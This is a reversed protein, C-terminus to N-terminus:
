SDGNIVVAPPPTSDQRPKPGAGQAEIAGSASAYDRGDSEVSAASSGTPLQFTDAATNAGPRVDPEDEVEPYTISMDLDEYDDDTAKAASHGLPVGHDPVVTPQRSEPKQRAPRAVPKRSSAGSCTTCLLRIGLRTVVPTANAANVLGDCGSCHATRAM